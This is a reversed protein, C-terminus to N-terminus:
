LRVSANSDKLQEQKHLYEFEINMKEIIPSVNGALYLRKLEEWAPDPEKGRGRVLKSTKNKAKWRCAFKQARETFDIGAFKHAKKALQIRGEETKSQEADIPLYFLHGTPVTLLDLYLGICREARQIRKSEKDPNNYVERERWMKSHLALLPDRMPVIFPVEPKYKRVNEILQTGVRHHHDHAVLIQIKALDVESLDADQEPKPGYRLNTIYKDFWKSTIVGNTPAFDSFDTPHIEVLRRHGMDIHRQYLSGFHLQNERPVSSAILFSAYFTGTHQISWILCNHM